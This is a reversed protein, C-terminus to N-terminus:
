AQSAIKRRVKGERSTDHQACHNCRGTLKADLACTHASAPSHLLIFASCRSMCEVSSICESGAIILKHMMKWNMYCGNM